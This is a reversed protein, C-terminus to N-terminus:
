VSPLDFDCVAHLGKGTAGGATLASSMNVSSNRLALSGTPLTGPLRRKLRYSRVSKTKECVGGTPGWQYPGRTRIEPLVTGHMQNQERLDM